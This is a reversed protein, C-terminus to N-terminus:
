VFGFFYVLFFFPPAAPIEFFFVKWFSFHAPNKNFLRLTFPKRPM